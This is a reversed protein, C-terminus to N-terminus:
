LWMEASKSIKAPPLFARNTSYEDSQNSTGVSIARERRLARRMLTFIAVSFRDHPLLMSQFIHFFNPLAIATGYV